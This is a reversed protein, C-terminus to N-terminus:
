TGVEQKLRIGHFPVIEILKLHEMTWFIRWRAYRPIRRQSLVLHADPFAIIGRRKQCNGEITRLIKQFYAVFKNAPFVYLNKGDNDQKRRAAPCCKKQHTM